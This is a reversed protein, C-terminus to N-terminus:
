QDLAGPCFNPKPSRNVELCEEQGSHLTGRVEFNEGCHRSCMAAENNGWVM